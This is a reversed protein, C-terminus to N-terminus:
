KELKWWRSKIGTVQFGLRRYLRLAAENSDAVRLQLDKRPIMPLVTLAWDCGLGHFEPLVAIAELDTESIEAMAAYRGDVRALWCTDQGYRKKLDDRDYHRASPVERFRSNYIHLFVDANERTLPELTICGTPAPLGAKPRSMILIDYAHPAPLAELEYTVYVEEAGVADCFQRCEQLFAAAQDNWIAKVLVYARGFTSLERFILSALGHQGTFLPINNM